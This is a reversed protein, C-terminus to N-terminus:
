VSSRMLFFYDFSVSRRIANLLAFVLSGMGANALSKIVLWEPLRVQSLVVGFLGFGGAASKVIDPDRIVQVEGKCNVVEVEVVFDSTSKHRRGAGHCITQTVGASTVEVLVPLAPLMWRYGGGRESLAWARVHDSTAAAGVRVRGRTVGDAGTEEGELAIHELEKDVRNAALVGLDTKPVAEDLEVFSIVVGGDRGFVDSWSHRTGAASVALKERAAFRVAEIVGRRTRPVFTYMPVTKVTRGWNTFRENRYVKVPEVGGEEVVGEVPEDPIRLVQERGGFLGSLLGREGVGGEAAAAEAGATKAAAAADVEEEGPWAGREARQELVEARGLVEAPEGAPRAALAAKGARDALMWRHAAAALAAPPAAAAAALAEPERALGELGHAKVAATLSREWPDRASFCGRVHALFNLPM